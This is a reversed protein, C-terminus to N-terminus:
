WRWGPARASVERFLNPWIETEAIVVVSPRLTRLVRRVAGVYDVPAYFVGDAVGLLKEGAIARGALTTTSVFIPQASM